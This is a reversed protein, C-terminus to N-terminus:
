GGSVPPIIAIEANVPLPQDDDAYEKNVAVALSHLGSMQPYTERLWNKLDGVTQMEPIDCETSGVIERTIGFLLVRMIDPKV